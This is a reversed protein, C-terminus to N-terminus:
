DVEFRDAPTEKPQRVTTENTQNVPTEKPTKEYQYICYGLVCLTGIAVIAWDGYYTLKPESQVKTLQAHEERKRRNWEALRKAAEVKKPDKTTVQQLQTREPMKTAAKSVKRLHELM